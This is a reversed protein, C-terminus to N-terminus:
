ETPRVPVLDGNRIFYDHGRWRISRRTFSVLWIFTAMADWV